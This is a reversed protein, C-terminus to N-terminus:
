STRLTMPKRITRSGEELGRGVKQQAEIRATPTSRLQREAFFDSILMANEFDAKQSKAPHDAWKVGYIGLAPQIAIEWARECWQRCFLFCRLAGRASERRANTLIEDLTQRIAPEVEIMPNGEAFGFMKVLM